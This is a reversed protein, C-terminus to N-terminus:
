NRNFCHQWTPKVEIFFFELFNTNQLLFVVAVRFKFDATLFYRFVTYIASDVISTGDSAAFSSVNNQYIKNKPISFEGRM